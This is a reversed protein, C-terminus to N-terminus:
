GVRESYGGRFKENIVCRFESQGALEIGGIQIRQEFQNSACGRTLNLTQRGQQLHKQILNKGSQIKFVEDGARGVRTPPRWPRKLVFQDFGSPAFKGFRMRHNQLFLITRRVASLGAQPGRVKIEEFHASVPLQFRHNLNGSGEGIIASTNGGNRTASVLPRLNRSFGPNKLATKARPRLAFLGVLIEFEPGIVLLEFRTKSTRM